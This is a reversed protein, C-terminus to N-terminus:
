DKIYYDGSAHYTTEIMGGKATVAQLDATVSRTIDFSQMGTPIAALETASFSISIDGVTSTSESYLTTTDNFVTIEVKVSEGLKVPDGSWYIVIGESKSITDMNSPFDVEMGTLDAHNTYTKSNKDTFVYTVASLLGDEILGYHHFFLDFPIAHYHMNNGNMTIGSPAYLIVDNGFPGGDRFEAMAWTKNETKDYYLAYGQWLASVAVEDSSETDCSSLIIFALLFLLLNKM